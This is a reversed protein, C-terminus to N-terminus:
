LVKIERIFDNRLIKNVEKILMERKKWLEGAVIPHTTKIKLKGEKIRVERIEEAQIGLIKRTAVEKFVKEVTKEDM